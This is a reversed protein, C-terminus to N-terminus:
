KIVYKIDVRSNKVSRKSNWFLKKKLPYKNEHSLGFGKM